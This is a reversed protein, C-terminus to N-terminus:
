LYAGVDGAPATRVGATPGGHSLALLEALTVGDPGVSRLAGAAGGHEALWREAEVRDLRGVEIQALCRGPRTVAPHLRWLEENTTLCVLLRLGQGVMGDTLNLLRSLAQGSANKADPRILEDCDELLLLSWRPPRDDDPAAPDLEGELLIANLYAADNFLRDPDSVYVTDCWSSWAHALSRLLTTKGTGPPGWLLVLRGDLQAPEREVLRQFAARVSGAYNGAIASWPSSQMRRRRRIPGREGRFCFTVEVSDPQRAAPENWRAIQSALEDVRAPEVGFVWAWTEGDSDARFRV